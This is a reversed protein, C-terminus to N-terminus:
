LVEVPEAEALVPYEDVTPDYGDDGNDLDEVEDPSLYDDLESARAQSWDDGVEDWDDDPVDGQAEELDEYKVMGLKISEILDLADQRGEAPTVRAEAKTKFPDEVKGFEDAENAGYDLIYWRSGCGKRVSRLVFRADGKLAFEFSQETVALPNEIIEPDDRFMFEVGCLPCLPFGADEIWKSTVQLVYGCDPCKISRLYTKQKRRGSTGLAAHPYPGLEDTIAKLRERLAEGAVTATPKGELGMAVAAKAFPAKHGIGPAFTTHLIEHLLTEAVAIEDSLIPHIMLQHVGDSASAGYHCEGIHMRTESRACSAPFSCSVRYKPVARGAEKVIPVLRKGLEELWHERNVIEQSKTEQEQTLTEPM